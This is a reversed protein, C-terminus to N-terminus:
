SKKALVTCVTTSVTVSMDPATQVFDLLYTILTIVYLYPIRFPMLWKLLKLHKTLRVPDPYKIFVHIFLFQRSFCRYGKDIVM